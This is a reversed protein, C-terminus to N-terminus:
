TRSPGSDLPPGVPKEAAKPRRRRIELWILVAVVGASDWLWDIMDPSRNVYRQLYEDLAAYAILILAAFWVFRASLPRGLSENFRWFVLTCM